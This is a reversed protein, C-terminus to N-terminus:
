DWLGSINIHASVLLQVSLPSLWGPAGIYDTNKILVGTYSDSSFWLYHLWGQLKNAPSGEM